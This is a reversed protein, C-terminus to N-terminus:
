ALTRIHPTSDLSHLLRGDVMVPVILVSGLSMGAQPDIRPANATDDCQVWESTRLCVGSLGSDPGVMVGVDPPIGACACCRMASTNGIAIAGTITCISVM